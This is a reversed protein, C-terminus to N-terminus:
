FLLNNLKKENFEISTVPFRNLFTETEMGFHYEPGIANIWMHWMSYNIACPREQEMKRRNFWNFLFLTRTWDSKEKKKRWKEETRLETLARHFTSRLPVVRGILRQKIVCRINKLITMEKTSFNNHNWLLLLLPQTSANNGTAWTMINCRHLLLLMSIPTSRIHSCKRIM